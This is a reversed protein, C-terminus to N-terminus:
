VPQASKAIDPVRQKFIPYSHFVEGIQCGFIQEAMLMLMERHCRAGHACICVLYVDKTASLEALHKLRAVASASLEFRSEYDVAAFSSNHDGLRKQAENFERLLEKAPALESIFEDRLEKRLFRPYFRMTVAIHANDRRLLEKKIDAVSGQKLM